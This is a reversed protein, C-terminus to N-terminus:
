AVGEFLDPAAQVTIPVDDALCETLLDIENKNPQEIAITLTLDVSRGRACTFSIKSIKVGPFEHGSITVIHDQYFNDLKVQQVMPLRPLQEPDKSEPHWFFRLETPAIQLLACLVAGDVRGTIKVDASLHQDADPKDTKKLNIHAVKGGVIFNFNLIM